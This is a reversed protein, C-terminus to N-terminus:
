VNSSRSRPGESVSEPSVGCGGTGLGKSQPQSVGGAGRTELRWVHTM